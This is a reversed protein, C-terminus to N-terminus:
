GVLDRWAPSTARGSIGAREAAAMVALVSAEDWADRKKWSDVTARPLDLFEAIRAIRWGMWYLHRATLRHQDNEIHALPTM